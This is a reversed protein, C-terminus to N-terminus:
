STEMEWFSTTENWVELGLVGFSQLGVKTMM